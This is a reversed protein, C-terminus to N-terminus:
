LSFNIWLIIKFVLCRLFATIGDSSANVNKFYTAFWLTKRDIYLIKSMKHISHMNLTTIQVYITWHLHLCGWFVMDIYREIHTNHMCRFVSLMGIYVFICFLLRRLGCSVLCFLLQDRFTNEESYKKRQIYKGQTVISPILYRIEIVWEQPFFFITFYKVIFQVKETVSTSAFQQGKTFGAVESCVTAFLSM